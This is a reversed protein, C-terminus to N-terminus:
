PASFTQLAAPLDALTDIVADAHHTLSRGGWPGTKVGIAYAGAAKGAHVDHLSDGVMAIGNAPVGLAESFAEVMGPGPKAGFGSNYGYVIDFYELWGLQQMHLVATEEADNTAIGLRYDLSKLHMLTPETAEFGVLQKLSERTFMRDIEREFEPGGSRELIDAWLMALEIPSDGVLASSHHIKKEELDYRTIEALRTLKAPDGKSLAFLVEYTARGWTADFDILTGDKDFLIARITM